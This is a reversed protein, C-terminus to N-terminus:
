YHYKYIELSKQLEKRARFLYVKVQSLSLGTLRTIEEYSYGEMDKLLVLNRSEASLSMLAKEISKKLGAQFIVESGKEPLVDMLKQRGAARFRDVSKRYVLTFLYSKAKTIDVAERNEWLVTFAHQVIDRADEENGSSKLAFRYMGDAYEKVCDNFEATTM